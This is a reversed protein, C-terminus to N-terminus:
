SHVEKSETWLTCTDNCQELELDMREWIDKWIAVPTEDDWVSSVLEHVDGEWHTGEPALATVEFPDGGSEITAGLKTALRTVKQKYTTNGGPQPRVM